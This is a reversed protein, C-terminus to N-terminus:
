DKSAKLEDNEILKAHLVVRKSGDDTCSSLTLIKDESSVDVGYDYITRSKITKIFENFEVDNKFKTNIYYHEPKRSYTSFVQYYYTGKETVLIM